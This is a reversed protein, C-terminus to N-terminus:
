HVELESFPVCLRIVQYGSPYVIGYHVPLDCTVQLDCSTIRGCPYTSSDCLASPIIRFAQWATNRFYKPLIM